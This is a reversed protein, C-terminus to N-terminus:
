ASALLTRGMLELLSGWHKECAAQDYVPLDPM